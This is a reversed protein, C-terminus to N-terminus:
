GLGEVLEFRTCGGRFVTLAVFSDPDCSGLMEQVKGSRVLAKARGSGGNRVAGGRLGPLLSVQLSDIGVEKIAKESLVWGSTKLVVFSHSGSLEQLTVPCM